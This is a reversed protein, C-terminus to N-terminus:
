TKRFLAFLEDGRGTAKALPVYLKSLWKRLKRKKSPTGRNGLRYDLSQLVLKPKVPITLRALELGHRAALMRLNEASYLYLHRPADNAYWWTGFWARGLSRSNPTRILVMGGPKTVRAIEAMLQHPDPVHEILHHATVLDFSASEFGASELDGHFVQLGQARCIGVAKDNFEVGQSQWGISRLRLLYEGNGCGVDLAAGGAVWPIVDAVRSRASLRDRLGAKAPVELHAYGLERKLRALEAPSYGVRSPDRYVVYSPPYFGAIEEGGPLPHQYILDCAACHHYAFTRDGEFMLDRGSFAYSGGGNCVPCVSSSDQQM